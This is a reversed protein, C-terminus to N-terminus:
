PEDQEKKFEALLEERYTRFDQIMQIARNDDLDVKEKMFNFIFSDALSMAATEFLQRAVQVAAHMPMQTHIEGVQMDVRPTQNRHSILSQIFIVDGGPIKSRAVELARLNHIVRKLSERDCNGSHESENCWRCLGPM